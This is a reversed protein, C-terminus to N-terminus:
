KASQLRFISITRRDFGQEDIEEVSEECSFGADVLRGLFRDVVLRRRDAFVITGGPALTTLVLQKLCDHFFYDYLIESGIILDYRELKAPREWDLKCFRVHALRNQAANRRTFRLADEVYDSFTVIAGLKSATVGALGLGAGLELVRKRDLEGWRYLFRALALSASTIQFWFSIRPGPAEQQAIPVSMLLSLDGVRITRNASSPDTVNNRTEASGETNLSVANERRMERKKDM